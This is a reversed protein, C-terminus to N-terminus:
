GNTVSHFNGDRDRTFRHSVNMKCVFHGNEGQALPSWLGKYIHCHPCAPM